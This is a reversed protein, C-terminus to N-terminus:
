TRTRRRQRFHEIEPRLSPRSLQFEWAGTCRRGGRVLGIAGCAFSRSQEAGGLAAQGDRTRECAPVEAGSASQLNSFSPLTGMRVRQSPLALGTRAKWVITLKCLPATDGSARPEAGVDTDGDCMIYDARAESDPDAAGEGPRFRIKRIGCDTEGCLQRFQRM